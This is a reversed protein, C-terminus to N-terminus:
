PGSPNMTALSAEPLDTSEFWTTAAAQDQQFYRTGARVMAAQRLGPNDITGAWIVASHPDEGALASIFGNIAQDRDPSAPMEALSHSVGQPDQSAWTAYAASWANGRLSGEPLEAAWQLTAELGKESALERTFDDMPRWDPREPHAADFVYKTALDMDHDILGEYLRRRLSGQVEPELGQFLDISTQPHASALGPLMNGLYGNRYQQPIEEIHAIATDPDNAGWAYDFLRWQEGDAGNEHMVSRTKLAMARSFTGSAMERLLRDFALRREIPNPSQIFQLVLAELAEEDLPAPALAEEALATSTETPSDDSPSIRPEGATQSLPTAAPPLDAEMKPSADRYTSPLSPRPDPGPHQSAWRLGLAHAAIVVLLWSAHTVCAGKTLFARPQTPERRTTKM